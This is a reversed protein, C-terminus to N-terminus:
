PAPVANSSHFPRLRMLEEFWSLVYQDVLTVPRTNCAVVFRVFGAPQIFWVLIPVIPEWNTKVFETERPLSNKLNVWGVGHAAKGSASEDKACGRRLSM